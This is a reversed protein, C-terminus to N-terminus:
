VSEMQDFFIELRTRVQEEVFYRLDSMDAEIIVGPLGTLRSLEKKKDYLGFSNPKCSRNSFM